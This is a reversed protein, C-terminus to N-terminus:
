FARGNISGPSFSVGGISGPTFYAHGVSIVNQSVDDAEDGDWTIRIEFNDVSGTILNGNGSTFQLRLAIGNDNDNLNEPTLLPDTFQFHNVSEDFLSTTFYGGSGLTFDGIVGSMFLYPDVNVVVDTLPNVFALDTIRYLSGMDLRLNTATLPISYNFGTLYLWYSEASGIGSFQVQFYLGNLTAINSPTILPLTGGAGAGADTFITPSRTQSPM